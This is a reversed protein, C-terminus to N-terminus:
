DSLEGNIVREIGEKITPMGFNILLGLRLNTLKLYTLLQRKFVPQMQDCAKLEVILITNIIMGAKYALEIAIEDHILRVPMQRHVHLGRKILEYELLAEYASELLGPGYRAHLQYATDVVVRAIENANVSLEMNKVRGFVESDRM